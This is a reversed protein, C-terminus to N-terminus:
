ILRLIDQWTVLLVLGLLLVLGVIQIVNMVKTSIPKGRVKEVILFAAHGGDLVPLPLFNCVAVFVSLMAMFYVFRKGSQRAVKVAVEGIGVPGRLEKSSVTRGFLARINAYAMRIFDYTEKSGWKIAALPNTHHITVQWSEFPRLPFVRYGYDGANFDTDALPGIVAEFPQSGNTGTLTVAQDGASSLARILESWTTVTQGNVAEILCGRTIGAQQAASGPRVYGVVLHEQDIDPRTGIIPRGNEEDPTIDVPAQTVGDRLVVIQAGGSLAQENVQRLEPLSPLNRGGYSIIVDGPLLGAAEAASGNTVTGLKLRPWMGLVDLMVETIQGSAIVQKPAVLEGTEEDPEPPWLTLRLPVSEAASDEDEPMPKIATVRLLSGDELFILDYDEGAMVVGPTVTVTKTKPLAADASRVEVSIPSGDLAEEIEAVQWHHEIAQGNVAVVTEGAAFGDDSTASGDREALVLTMAPDIGFRFVESDEGSPSPGKMVGLLAVGHAIDGDLDRDIRMVFTKGAPSLMAAYMIQEFRDIPAGDVATIRDGPKLGTTVLDHDAPRDIWIVTAQGAPYDEAVGGVIPAPFKMGILGIVVFALAAFIVNMVVGASIVLMRQGVTKNVFSRPDKDGDKLPSFDEQGAMKVYGGLPVLRLCYDTEKGRFGFLRPGMGLAFTEVRIGVLRAMVFHGLEHVFIVVGLGALFMLIPIVNHTLIDVLAFALMNMTPESENARAALSAAYRVCGM